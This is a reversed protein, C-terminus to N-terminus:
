STLSIKYGKNVVTKILFPKKFDVKRRLNFIHTEIVNSLHNTANDWIIETILEKSNIIEPKEMLLKLIEFEKTTLIILHKGRRVEHSLLNLNLDAFCLISESTTKSRRLLAKIRSHLECFSFPKALYDDSGQELLSIKEQYQSYSSIIIIPMALGESRLNKTFKQGDIKPFSHECIILDYSNNINLTLGQEASTALDVVYHNARLFHIIKQAMKLNDEIILLRM